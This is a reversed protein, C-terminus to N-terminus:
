SGGQELIKVEGDNGDQGNPAAVILGQQQMLLALGPLVTERWYMQAKEDLDEINEVMIAGGAGVGQIVTRGTTMEAARRKLDFGIKEMEAGDRASVKAPKIVTLNVITKGGDSVETKREVTTVPLMLIEDAKKIVKEGKQWEEEKVVRRREVWLEADKQIASEKAAKAQAALEADYARVRLVWDWRGSWRGMIAISKHLKQSVAMLSRQAGMDRYESYAVFARQSEGVRRRYVGLDDNSM